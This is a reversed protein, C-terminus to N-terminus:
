DLPLEDFNAFKCMYWNHDLSGLERQIQIDVNEEHPLDVNMNLDLIAVKIAKGSHDKGPAANVELDMKNIQFNRTVQISEVSKGLKQNFTFNFHGSGWANELENDWTCSVLLDGTGKNCVGFTAGITFSEKDTRLNQESAQLFNKIDASLYKLSIWDGYRAGDFQVSFATGHGGGRCIFHSKEEIRNQAFSQTQFLCLALASLFNKKM